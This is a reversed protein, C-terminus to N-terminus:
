LCGPQEEITGFSKSSAYLYGVSVLAYGKHLVMTAILLPLIFSQM